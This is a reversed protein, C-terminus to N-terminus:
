KKAPEARASITAGAQRRELGDHTEVARRQDAVGIGGPSDGLAVGDVVRDTLHGGLRADVEAHVDRDIAVALDCRGVRPLEEGHM